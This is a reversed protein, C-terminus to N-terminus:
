IQWHGHNSFQQRSLKYVLTSQSGNNAMWSLYRWAICFLWNELMLIKLEIAYWDYVFIKDGGILIFNNFRENKKIQTL